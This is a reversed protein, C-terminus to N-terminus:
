WTWAGAMPTSRSGCASGGCQGGRESPGAGNRRRLPRADSDGEGQTVTIGGAFDIPTALDALPTLPVHDEGARRGGTAAAGGTSTIGDLGLDAAVAGNTADALTVSNGGNGTLEFVTPGSASPVRARRCRM